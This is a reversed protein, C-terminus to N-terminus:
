TLLISFLKSVDTNKKGQNQNNGKKQDNGSQNGKRDRNGRGRNNFGGRRNGRGYRSNSAFVKQGDYSLVKGSHHDLCPSNIVKKVNDSGTLYSNLTNLM